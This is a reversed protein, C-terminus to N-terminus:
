QRQRCRHGAPSGENGFESLTDTVDRDAQGVEKSLITDFREGGSFFGGKAAGKGVIRRAAEAAAKEAAAYSSLKAAAASFTRDYDAHSVDSALANYKQTFRTVSEQIRGREYDNNDM